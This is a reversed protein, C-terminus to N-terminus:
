RLLPEFLVSFRLFPTFPAPQLDCQAPPGGAKPRRCSDLPVRIWLHTRSEHRVQSGRVARDRGRAARAWRPGDSHVVQGADTQV